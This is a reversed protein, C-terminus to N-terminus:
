PGGCSTSVTIGSKSGLRAALRRVRGHAPTRTGTHVTIAVPLRWLSRFMRGFTGQEYGWDFNWRTCASKSTASAGSRPSGAGRHRPLSRARRAAASLLHRPPVPRDGPRLPARAQRAASPGRPGRLASTTIRPRRGPDSCRSRTAPTSCRRSRKSRTLERHRRPDPPVAVGDSDADPRCGRKSARRSVTSCQTGSTTRSCTRAASSRSHARPRPNTPRSACASAFEEAGDFLLGGDSRECHWVVVDSRPECRGADRGAVSWSPGRSARSPRPNSTCTPPRSRMTANPARSSDSTSSRDAISAPAHVDGTGITVLSFPSTTWAVRAFAELLWEWRKGGERRGVYLVFRGEIGHRARFGDADYTAPIHVGSGVVRQRSPLTFLQQALAREPESNFWVGQAGSFLPRFLELKAQARRAPVAPPDHARPQDGCAFTTWFLYPAFVLARYQAANRLLYQYLEPVRLDDNMWRQQENLGPHEGRLM